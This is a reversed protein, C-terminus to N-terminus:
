YKSKRRYLKVVLSKLMFRIYILPFCVFASVDFRHIKNLVFYFRSHEKPKYSPQLLQKNNIIANDLDVNELHLSTNELISKGYETQCLILSIGKKVEDASLLTGWSDGLTIDSVRNLSAYYCSYCNETYSVSKLFLYTYMDMVSPLEIPKIGNSLFYDTKKRFRIDAIKTIPCGKENLFMELIKPSPTGHCILDITYLLPNNGIVHKVAAIQCPLGIVLVKTNAKLLEKLKKYIGNPTSKVYKSGTFKKIEDVTYAFDFIFKGDKFTCSCVVGKSKVFELAIATAVGGSSSAMRVQENTAWGQYWAIPHQTAVLSNNPCIRECLGCKVCLDPNIIANYTRINDVINIAGKNCVDVCAACGTCQDIKCVTKMTTRDM